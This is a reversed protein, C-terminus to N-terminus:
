LTYQKDIMLIRVHSCHLKNGAQPVVYDRMKTWRVSVLPDTRVEILGHGIATWLGGQRVATSLLLVDHTPARQISYAYQSLAKLCLRTRNARKKFVNGLPCIGSSSLDTYGGLFVVKSDLIPRPILKRRSSVNEWHYGLFLQRSAREAGNRVKYNAHFEAQENFPSSPSSPSAVCLGM